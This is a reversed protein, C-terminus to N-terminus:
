AVAHRIFDCGIECQLEVDERALREEGELSYADCMNKTLRVRRQETAAELQFRERAQRESYDLLRIQLNEQRLLDDQTAPATLSLM